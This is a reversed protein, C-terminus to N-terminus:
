DNPALLERLIGEGSLKVVMRVQVSGAKAVWM